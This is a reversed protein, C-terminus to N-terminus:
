GPTILSRIQRIHLRDHEAIFQSVEQLTTPGFIAHRAPRQWGADDLFELLALTNLRHSIFDQLAEPGDQ